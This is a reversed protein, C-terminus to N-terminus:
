STITVVEVTHHNLNIWQLGRLDTLAVLRRLHSQMEDIQRTVATIRFAVGPSHMHFRQTGLLAGDRGLPLRRVVEQEGGCFHVLAQQYLNFDLFAGWDDLVGGLVEHLRPCQNSLKEWRTCDLVFERRKSSTLRTAHIRGAVKSPRFNLLKGRPVDLLFLYNLLQSQHEDGIAKATKLEYVADDAVLDLLYQKTFDRHSVVVPVEIWVRRFGDALLRAQLDRQYAQEECLRGLANQSEFALGMVRYDVEEFESATLPRIDIPCDIPM